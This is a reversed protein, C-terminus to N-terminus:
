YNFARTNPDYAAGDTSKKAYNYTSRTLTDMHEEFHLIKDDRVVYLNFVFLDVLQGDHTEGNWRFRHAVRDGEAIWVTFPGDITSHFLPKFADEVAAFKKSVAEKGVIPNMGPLLLQVDDALYKLNAARGDERQGKQWAKVVELPTM